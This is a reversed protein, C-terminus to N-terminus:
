EPKPPMFLISSVESSFVYQGLASLVDPHINAVSEFSNVEPCKIKLVRFSDGAFIRYQSQTLCFALTVCEAATFNLVTCLTSPLTELIKSGQKFMEQRNGNEFAACIQSICNQRRFCGILEDKLYKLKQEDKSTIDRFDIDDLLSSLIQARDSESNM